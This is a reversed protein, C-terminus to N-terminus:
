RLGEYYNFEDELDELDYKIDLSLGCITLLWFYATLAEEHTAEREKLEIKINGIEYIDM